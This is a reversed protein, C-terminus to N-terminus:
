RAEFQFTGVERVDEPLDLRSMAVDTTELRGVVEDPIPQVFAVTSAQNPLPVSRLTYGLTM